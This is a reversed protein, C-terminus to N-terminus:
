QNKKGKKKKKKKKKKKGENREEGSNSERIKIICSIPDALTM